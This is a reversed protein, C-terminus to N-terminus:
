EINMNKCKQMQMAAGNALIQSINCTRTNMYVTGRLAFVVHMLRGQSWFSFSHSHSRKASMPQYLIYSIPRVPKCSFISVAAVVKIDYRTMTHELKWFPQWIVPIPRLWTKMVLDRKEDPFKNYGHNPVKDQKKLSKTAQPMYLFGIFLQEFKMQWVIKPRRCSLGVFRINQRHGPPIHGDPQLWPLAMCHNKEVDWVALVSVYVKCFDQLFKLIERCKSFMTNIINWSM